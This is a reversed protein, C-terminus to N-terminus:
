SERELGVVEYGRETPRLYVGIRKNWQPHNDNLSYIEALLFLHKGAHLYETEPLALRTESQSFPGKLPQVSDDKNNYVSWTIRYRTAGDMFGYKDSM